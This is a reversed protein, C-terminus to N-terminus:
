AQLKVFGIGPKWRLDCRGQIGPLIRKIFAKDADNGKLASNPPPQRLFDVGM